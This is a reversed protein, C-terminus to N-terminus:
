RVLGELLLQIEWTSLHVLSSGQQLVSFFPEKGKSIITLMEFSCTNCDSFFSHRSQDTFALYTKSLAVASPPSETPVVYSLVVPPFPALESVSIQAPDAAMQPDTTCRLQVFTGFSLTVGSNVGILEVVGRLLVGDLGLARSGIECTYDFSM